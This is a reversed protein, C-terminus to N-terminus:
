GDMPPPHYTPRASSWGPPIEIELRQCGTVEIPPGQVASSQKFPFLSSSSNSLPRSTNISPPSRDTCCRTGCSRTRVHSLRTHPEAANRTLPPVHITDLPETKCDRHPALGPSRSRCHLFQRSKIQTSLDSAHATSTIMWGTRHRFSPLLKTRARLHRCRYSCRWWSRICSKHRIVM